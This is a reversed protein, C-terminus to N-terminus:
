GKPKGCQGPKNHFFVGGGATQGLLAAEGQLLDEVEGVDLRAQTEVAPPSSLRGTRPYVPRQPFSTSGQGGPPCFRWLPQHSRGLAPPMLRKQAGIEPFSPIEIGVLRARIRRRPRRPDARARISWRGPRSPMSRAPMRSPGAWSSRSEGAMSSMEASRRCIARTMMRVRAPSERSRASRFRTPRGAKRMHKRGAQKSIRPMTRSAGRSSPTAGSSAAMRPATTAATEGATM